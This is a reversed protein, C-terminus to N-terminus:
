LAANILYNEAKLLQVAIFLSFPFAINVFANAAIWLMRIVFNTHIQQQNFSLLTRLDM